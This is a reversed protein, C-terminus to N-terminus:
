YSRKLCIFCKHRYNISSVLIHFVNNFICCLFNISNVLYTKYKFTYIMLYIKYM